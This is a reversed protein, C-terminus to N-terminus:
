RATVADACRACLVPHEALTGVEFRHRWCRECRRFDTAALTVHTHGEAPDAAPVIKLDSLIFFEELDTGLAALRERLAPDSVHLTVEAELANGISKEQRAAEVAQSILARLGLLEDAQVGLDVAVHAPDHAPFL